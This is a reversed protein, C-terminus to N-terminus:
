LILACTASNSESDTHSSQEKFLFIIELICIHLTFGIHYTLSDHMINM